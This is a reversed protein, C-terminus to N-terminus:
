WFKWWPRKSKKAPAPNLITSEIESIGGIMEDFTSATVRKGTQPDYGALGCQHLAPLVGDWYRKIAVIQAPSFDWYPLMVAVSDKLISIQLPVHELNPTNLEITGLQERVAEISTSMMSAIEDFDKQFEQLGLDLALLADAIKRGDIANAPNLDGPDEALNMFTKELPQGAQEKFFQLDYSM